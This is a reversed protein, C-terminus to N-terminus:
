LQLWLFALSFDYAGEATMSQIQMNNWDMQQKACM